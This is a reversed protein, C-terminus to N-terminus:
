SKCINNVIAKCIYSHFLQMTSDGSVTLHVTFIFHSNINIIKGFCFKFSFIKGWAVLLLKIKYVFSFKEFSM